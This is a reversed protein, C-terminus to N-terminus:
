RGPRHGRAARQYTMEARGTGSNRAGTVSLKLGSQRLNRSAQDFGRIADSMGSLRDGRYGRGGAKPLGGGVDYDEDEDPRGRFAVRADAVCKLQAEAVAEQQATLDFDPSEFTLSRARVAIALVPPASDLRREFRAQLHSTPSPRRM